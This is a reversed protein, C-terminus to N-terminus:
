YLDPVQENNGCFVRDAGYFWGTADGEVLVNYRSQGCERFRDEDTTIHLEYRRSSLDIVEDTTLNRVFRPLKAHFVGTSDIRRPGFDISISESGNRGPVYIRTSIHSGPTLRHTGIDAFTGTAEYRGYTGNLVYLIPEVTQAASRRHRAPTVPVEAEREQEAAERARRDREAQMDLEARDQERRWDWYMSIIGGVRGEPGNGTGTPDWSITLGGIIALIVFLLVRPGTLLKRDEM